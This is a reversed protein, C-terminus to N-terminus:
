IVLNQINKFVRPNSADTEWYTLIFGNGSRAIKIHIPLQLCVTVTPLPMFLRIPYIIQKLIRDSAFAEGREERKIYICKVGLKLLVFDTIYRTYQYLSLWASLVSRCICPWYMILFWKIDGLFTQLGIRCHM